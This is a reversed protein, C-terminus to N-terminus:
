VGAARQGGGGAGLVPFAVSRFGLSRAVQLANEVSAQIAQESSRGTVLHRVAVFVIGKLPLRGPGTLAAGGLPLTGQERLERFPERGAQERIARAHGPVLALPFRNRHWDCVILEVKQALLDDVVVTLARENM